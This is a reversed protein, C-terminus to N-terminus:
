SLRHIYISPGSPSAVLWAGIGVQMIHLQSVLTVSQCGRASIPKGTVIHDPEKESQSCWLRRTVKWTPISNTIPSLDADLEAATYYLALAWLAWV